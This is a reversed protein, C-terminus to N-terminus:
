KVDKIAMTHYEYLHQLFHSILIAASHIYLFFHAGRGSEEDLIGTELPTAFPCDCGFASLASSSAFSTKPVIKERLFM